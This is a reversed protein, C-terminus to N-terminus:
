HRTFIESGNEGDPGIGEIKFYCTNYNLEQNQCSLIFKMEFCGFKTSRERNFLSYFIFSLDGEVWELSFCIRVVFQSMKSSAVGGGNKSLGVEWSTWPTPPKLETRLNNKFKFLVPGEDRNLLYIFWYKNMVVKSIVKTKGKNEMESRRYGRRIANVSARRQRPTANVAHRQGRPTSRTANVTARSSSLLAVQYFFHAVRRRRHLLM